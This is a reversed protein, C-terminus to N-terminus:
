RLGQIGTSALHNIINIIKFSKLVSAKTDGQHFFEQLRYDAKVRKKRLQDLELGIEALLLKNEDESDRGSRMWEILKEHVNVHAKRISDPSINLCSHFAAYYGRSVACRWYSEKSKESLNQALNLLDEPTTSM